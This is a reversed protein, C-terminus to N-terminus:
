YITKLSLTFLVLITSQGPCRVWQNIKIKYNSFDLPSCTGVVQKTIMGFDECEDLIIPPFTSKLNEIFPDIVEKLSFGLNKEIEKIESVRQREYHCAIDIATKELAENGQASSLIWHLTKIEEEIYKIGGGFLPAQDPSIITM